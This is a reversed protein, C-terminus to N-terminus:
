NRTQLLKVANAEDQDAMGCLIKYELYIQRWIERQEPTGETELVLTAFNDRKEALRRLFYREFGPTKKLVRIDSLDQDAQVRAKTDSM